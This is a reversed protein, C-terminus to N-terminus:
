ENKISENQFYILKEIGSKSLEFLKEFFDFQALKYKLIHKEYYNVRWVNNIFTM